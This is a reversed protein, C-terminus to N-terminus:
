TPPDSQCKARYGGALLRGRRFFTLQRRFFIFRRLGSDVPEIRQLRLFLRRDTFKVELLAVVPRGGPTEGFGRFPVAAVGIGPQPQAIRLFFQFVQLGRPLSVRFIQFKGPARLVGRLNAAFHVFQFLLRLSEKFNWFVSCDNEFDTHSAYLKELDEDTLKENKLCNVVTNFRGAKVQKLIESEPVLHLPIAREPPFELKHSDALEMSTPPPRRTIFYVFEDSLILGDPPTVQDAKAAIKELDNWNINIHKDHLASALELSFILTLTFVPWFPRDPAYLRTSVSYVGAAGLIVLFPVAFLYYRQFTPHASSIHVGLALALWGCLYFEARQSPSWSSRFRVFLLGACATLALLLAQASHLWSLMVGIDHPIAGPWEVQRFVLNYQIINFLTQRPGKVFLYLM